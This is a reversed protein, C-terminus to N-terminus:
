ISPSPAEIETQTQSPIQLEQEFTQSLTVCDTQGAENIAIELVKNGEENGLLNQTLPAYPDLCRIDHQFAAHHSIFDQDSFDNYDFDDMELASISVFTQSSNIDPGGSIEDFNGKTIHRGM